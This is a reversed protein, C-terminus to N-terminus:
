KLKKTEVVGFEKLLARFKKTKKWDVFVIFADIETEKPVKKMSDLKMNLDVVPDSFSELLGDIALVSIDFDEDQDLIDTITDTVLGMDMYGTRASQNDYLRFKAKQLATLGSVQMVQETADEGLVQCRGHGALIHLEEDVIIPAIYGTDEMSKSILRVNEETHIKENKDYPKLDGIRVKILKKEVSVIKPKKKKVSKKLAKSNPLPKKTAM